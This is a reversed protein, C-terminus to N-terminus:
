TKNINEIEKLIKNLTPYELHTYINLEKALDVEEQSPRGRLDKKEAM